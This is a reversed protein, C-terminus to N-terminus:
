SWGKVLQFYYSAGDYYISLIDEAGAATSFSGATGGPWKGAPLTPIRGGTADQIVKLQKHGVGMNSFTLTISAGLTIVQNGGNVWDITAAATVTGNDYESVFDVTNAVIDGGTINVASADQAAMTGVDSIQTTWASGDYAVLFDEDDVWLTIGETPVYFHWASSYYHGIEGDHGTWNTGNAGAPVIYVDGEAPSGPESATRSIAHVSQAEIQRLATNHTLYKSAQGAVIEDLALIETSM